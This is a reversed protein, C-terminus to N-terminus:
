SKKIERKISLLLALRSYFVKYEGAMGGSVTSLKNITITKRM